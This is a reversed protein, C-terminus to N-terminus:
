QEDADEKKEGELEKKIDDELMKGIDVENQFSPVGFREPQEKKTKYCKRCYIYHIDDEDDRWVEFLSGCESCKSPVEPKSHALTKANHHSAIVDVKEGYEKEGELKKFFDQKMAITIIDKDVLEIVIERLVEKNQNIKDMLVKTNDYTILSQVIGKLESLEQELRELQNPLIEQAMEQHMKWSKDKWTELAEIKHELRFYGNGVKGIKIANETTLNALNSANTQISSLNNQALSCGNSMGDVRKELESLKSYYEKIMKNTEELLNNKTLNIERGKDDDSM